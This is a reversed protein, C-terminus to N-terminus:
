KNFMDKLDISTWTYPYNPFNEGMVLVKDLSDVRKGDYLYMSYEPEYFLKEPVEFVITLDNFNYQADIKNKLEKEFKERDLNCLKFFEENTLLKGTDLDFNYVLCETEGGTHNYTNIGKEVVISLIKENIIIHAFKCTYYKDIVSEGDKNYIVEETYGDVEKAGLVIVEGNTNIVSMINNYVENFEKNVKDADSSDIDIVPVRNLAGFENDTNQEAIRYRITKGFLYTDKLEIYLDNFLDEGGDHGMLTPTEIGSICILQSYKNYSIDCFDCIKDFNYIFKEENSHDDKIYKIDNKFDEYSTYLDKFEKFTAAEYLYSSYLKDEILEELKKSDIELATLFEKNNIIKKNKLDIHYNKFVSEEKSNTGYEIQLIDDILAYDFHVSPLNYLYDYDEEGSLAYESKHNNYFAELDTNIKKFEDLNINIVMLSLENYYDEGQYSVEEEKFIFGKDPYIKLDDYKNEGLNDKIPVSNNALDNPDAVENLFEGNISEGEDIVEEVEQVPLGDDEPVPTKYLSIFFVASLTIIIGILILTVFNISKKKEM